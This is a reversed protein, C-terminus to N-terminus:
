KLKKLIKQGHDQSELFVKSGRLVSVFCDDNYPHQNERNAREQMRIQENKLSECMLELVTKDDTKIVSCESKGIQTLDYGHSELFVKSGRLVSTFCDDNYPHQNERNAREQM